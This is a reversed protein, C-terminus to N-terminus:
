LPGDTTFVCVCVCVCVCVGLTQTYYIIENRNISQRNPPLPYAKRVLGNLSSVTWIRSLRVVLVPGLAVLVDRQQATVLNHGVRHHQASCCM